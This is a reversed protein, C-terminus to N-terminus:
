KLDVTVPNCSVTTCKNIILTDGTIEFTVVYHDSIQVTEVLESFLPSVRKNVVVRGPDPPNVTEIILEYEESEILDFESTNNVVQLIITFVGVIIVMMAGIKMFGIDELTFLIGLAIVFSWFALPLFKYDLNVQLNLILGNSSQITLYVYILFLLGIMIRLAHKINM